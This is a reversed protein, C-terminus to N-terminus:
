NSTIINVYYHTETFNDLRKKITKEIIKSFKLIISIPRYNEINNKNNNKHILIILPRFPITASAPITASLSIELVM